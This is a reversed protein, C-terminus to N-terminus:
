FQSELLLNLLKEGVHEGTFQRHYADELVVTRDSNVGFQFEEKGAGWAYQVRLAEQDFEVQVLPPRGVRRIRAQSVPWIEFELIKSGAERNLGRCSEKLWERLEHWRRPAHHVLLSREEQSRLIREANEQEVSVIREATRKAWESMRAGYCSIRRHTLYKPAIQSSPPKVARALSRAHIVSPCQGEPM